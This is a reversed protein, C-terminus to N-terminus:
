LKSIIQDILVHADKFCDELYGWFEDNLVEKKTGGSWFRLVCGIGDEFMIDGHAFMNRYEMVKKLVSALRDKDRGELLSDDHMIAIILNKKVSYSFHDAKIIRDSFFLRGRHEEIQEKQPFMYDTIISEFKQELCIASWIILGGNIRAQDLDKGVSFDITGFSVIKKNGSALDRLAEELDISRTAFQRQIPLDIKKM